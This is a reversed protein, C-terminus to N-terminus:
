QSFQKFIPFRFYQFLPERFLHSAATGTEGSHFLFVEPPLAGFKQM